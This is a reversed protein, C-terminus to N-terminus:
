LSRVVRKTDNQHITKATEPDLNALKTYLYESGYKESEAILQNRLEDDGKVGAYSQEFLLGKIYFGTGGCIIPTKKRAVIDAIAKDAYKIYDTVTFDASPDVIDVCHHPIKNREDKIPKATGIDLGRYIQMSDCCIIEGNINKALELATATKGVATPGTIVIIKTM